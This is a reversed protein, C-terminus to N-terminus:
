PVLLLVGSDDCRTLVVGLIDDVIFKIRFYKIKRSTKVPMHKIWLMHDSLNVWTDLIEM